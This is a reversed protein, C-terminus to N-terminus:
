AATVRNNSTRVADVGALLLLCIFTGNDSPSGFPLVSPCCFLRASPKLAQEDM